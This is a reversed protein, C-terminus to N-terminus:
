GRNVKREAEAVASEIFSRAKGIGDYYAPYLIRPYPGDGRKTRVNQRMTESGGLRAGRYGMDSGGMLEFIAAQASTQEVRVGYSVYLGSMRSAKSSSVRYGRQGGKEAGLGWQLNRGDQRDQEIWSYAAWGSLPPSANALRKTASKRIDSAGQKISKDVAKAIDKDMKNLLNVFNDVDTDIVASWGM